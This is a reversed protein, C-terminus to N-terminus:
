IFIHNRLNQGNFKSNYVQKSLWSSIDELVVHRSIDDFPRHYTNEYAYFQKDQNTVADYFSKIGEAPTIEDNLSYQMLLPLKLSAANMLLSKQKNFIECILSVSMQEHRLPDSSLIKIMDNDRTLKSYDTKGKMIFTPNIRSIVKLFLKIYLSQKAFSVAPNIAIIGRLDQPYKVAYDLSILGGLSHGLLVIQKNPEILRILKIFENLDEIYDNWKNIHGRVESSYGHGRLDLGYWTYGQPLLFNIINQLGGSHDGHGHVGIIVTDNASTPHWSQYFLKVGDKKVFVGEGHTM